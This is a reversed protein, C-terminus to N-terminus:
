LQIIEGNEIPVSYFMEGQKVYKNRNEKLNCIVVDKFDIVFLATYDNNVACFITPYPLEAYKKKRYPVNITTYPFTLGSWNTRHEVEVGMSIEGNEKNLLDIGYRNTNEELFINEKKFYDIVVRKAEADHLAFLESSFQKTKM